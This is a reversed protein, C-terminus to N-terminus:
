IVTIKWMQQFVSTQFIDLDIPHKSNTAGVLTRTHESSQYFVTSNSNCIFIIINFSMFFLFYKLLYLPEIYIWEM